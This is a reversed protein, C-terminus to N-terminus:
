TEIQSKLEASIADVSAVMKEGWQLVEDKHNAAYAAEISDITEKLDVAYLFRAVFKFKHAYFKIQDIENSGVAGSLGEMDESFRGVMKSLIEKFSVEDGDWNNKLKDFDM